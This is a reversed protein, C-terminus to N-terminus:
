KYAEGSSLIKKAHKKGEGKKCIKTLEFIEGALFTAKEELDVPGTEKPDLIKLIDRLELAPGIGSGIPQSGDTLVCKLKRKFYKGLFEFKRKLSMAENKDVKAGKGYPIDILIYKSGAAIKKSMISAILMPKPDIKLFKEVNIIKSDAPVIKLSGGWIMCGNTKEIIKKVEEMSFEVRAITEIVDATGAASTIARSSSKPITLGAAACISVVLPTTRNGPVGGISHKDVVFKRKLSLREGTNLFAKILYIIERLSMGYKYVSSVFLAIEAESISNLVIEKMISTIEKESLTKGEMKKRIYDVSAVPDSLNVDVRQGTRLNLIDNLEASIAVENSGVVRNDIINIIASIGRQPTSLTTLIIRDHTHVGLIEATKKNLIAVPIGASWGLTKVKLEM